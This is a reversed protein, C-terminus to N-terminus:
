KEDSNFRNHALRVSSDKNEVGATNRGTNTFAYFMVAGKEQMQDNIRDTGFKAFGNNYQEWDHEGDMHRPNM